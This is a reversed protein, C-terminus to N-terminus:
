KLVETVEVLYDDELSRATKNILKKDTSLAFVASGSGTMMVIKLGAAKLKDIIEQIEPVKKIATKQLSNGISAALLDDDGNALAEIVKDIDCCNYDPDKTFEAYIEKTSCGKDPKVIIAYYNNKISIPTTIEGRGTCRAPVNDVFFPVDSGLPKALELIEDRSLNLKFFQNVGKLTAVANSSGGGMGAQMPINKHIIIKLKRGGLNVKKDVLDIATSAINNHSAFNSYDDMIVFNDKKGKLENILLSDHLKLPLMVMDLEHYGDERKRVVNLAINIKAYSKVVLNNM